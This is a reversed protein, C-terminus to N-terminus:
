DRVEVPVPLGSSTRGSPSTVRMQLLHTGVQLNPTQTEDLVLEGDGTAAATVNVTMSVPTCNAYRLTAEITYGAIDKGDGEFTCKFAVILDDGKRLNITPM